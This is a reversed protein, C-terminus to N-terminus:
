SRAKRELQLALREVDAELDALVHGLLHEQLIARARDRDDVAQPRLDPQRAAAVEQLGEDVVQITALARQYRRRRRAVDGPLVAAGPRDLRRLEDRLGVAMVIRAIWDGNIRELYRDLFAEGPRRTLADLAQWCRVGFERYIRDALLARQELNANRLVEHLVAACLLAEHDDPTGHAPRAAAVAALREIVQLIAPAGDPYSTEGAYFDAALAVAAALRDRPQTPAM